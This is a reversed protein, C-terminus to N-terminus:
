GALPVVEGDGVGDLAAERRAHLASEDRSAAVDPLIDGQVPQLMQGLPEGPRGIRQDRCQGTPQLPRAQDFTLEAKVLTPEARAIFATTSDQIKRSVRLLAIAVGAQVLFALSALSVAATVVIRFVDDSM